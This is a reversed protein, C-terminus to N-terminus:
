LVALVCGALPPLSLTLWGNQTHLVGAPQGPCTAFCPALTRAGGLRRLDLGYSQLPRPATNLVCLLVEGGAMRLWALVGAPGNTRPDNAVWAYCAPDYEGSHLAPHATYLGGLAARYAAFDAHAPYATLAWDLPRFPDFARFHGLEGGMFDLKKGPRTYLYLYFLRAQAFKEDYNGYMGALIAGATNDDHSAANLGREEFFGAMDEALAPYLAPRAAFPAAFYGLARHAWGIDWKYDFGLGGQGTPRTALLCGATDEAILTVGPCRAHLGAALTKFFEAAQWSSGGTGPHYLAQGIADVRLGDCHCRHLWFAAASLLFSRIEGRSLDFRLSGWPSRGAAGPYEYLPEGDFAALFGDDVAFHVPVFDMLVGLGAGHLANVLACFEQPTGFRATPAFYGTGQYGGSGDFPYEALPLFEVHTYHHALLHPILAAALETYHYYSGDPHRQWSGAHVEYIALPANPDVGRRALWAADTFAFQPDCLRSATGPLPEFAFAYPDARLHWCGNAGQINYKYLQGARATAARGHWLGDEGRTLRTARYLNWGNWDGVVQVQRAHPAFVCFRWGRHGSHPACPHVGLTEYADFAIGGYFEQPEM